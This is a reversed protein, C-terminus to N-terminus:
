VNGEKEGIQKNFSYVLYYFLEYDEWEWEM